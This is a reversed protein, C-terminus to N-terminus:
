VARRTAMKFRHFGIDAEIRARTKLMRSLKGWAKPDSFNLEPALHTSAITDGRYSVPSASIAFLAKGAEPSSAGQFWV